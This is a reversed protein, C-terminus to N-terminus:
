IKSLSTNSDCYDNAAYSALYEARVNNNYGYQQLNDTRMSTTGTATTITGTIYSQWWYPNGPASDLWASNLWNIHGRYNGGM